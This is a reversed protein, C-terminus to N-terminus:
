ALEVAFGRLGLERLTGIVGDITAFSRPQNMRRAGALLVTEPGIDLALRYGGGDHEIVTARRIARATAIHRLSAITMLRHDTNSATM